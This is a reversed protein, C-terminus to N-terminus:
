LTEVCITREEAHTHNHSGFLPTTQRAFSPGPRPRISRARMFGLLRHGLTNITSITKFEKM